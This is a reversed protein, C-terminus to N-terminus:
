RNKEPSTLVGKLAKEIQRVFEVYKLEDGGLPDAMVVPLGTAEALMEAPRSPLQPETLIACLDREGALDMCAKIERATPERGPVPELTAAIRIEHRALLYQLSPHFAIVARGKLPALSQALEADLTELQTAFAASNARYIEAGDPDIEFLRGLLEPLILGVTHPDTWFHPDPAGSGHHHHHEHEHEHAEEIENEPTVVEEPLGLRAAEPVMAFIACAPSENDEPLIWGDLDDHAYFIGTARSSRVMESPSPSYSHPSAGPPLLTEVEAREGAIGRLIGALPPITAIFVPKTGAGSTSTLPASNQQEGCGLTLCVTLTMLAWADKTWFRLEDSM